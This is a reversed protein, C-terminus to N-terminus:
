LLSARITDVVFTDTALDLLLSEMRLGAEPSTSAQLVFSEFDMYYNALYNYIPNDQGAQLNLSMRPWFPRM